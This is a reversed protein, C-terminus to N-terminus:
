NPSHSLHQAICCYYNIIGGFDERKRVQGSCPVPERPVPTQPDLGQHPRSTECYSIYSDLVRKLHTQNVILLHDLCEERVTRVWCEAFANTDPARLPTHIVYFCASKFVNDFADTFKSDRDHMLFHLASNNEELNWVFQRAQQTVCTSDPNATIGVLPCTTDPHRFILPFEVPSQTLYIPTSRFKYAIVCSQAIETAGTSPSARSFDLAKKNSIAPAIYTGGAATVTRLREESSAKFAKWTL